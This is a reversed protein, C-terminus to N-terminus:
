HTVVVSAQENANVKVMAFAFGGTPKSHVYGGPTLSPVEWTILAYVYYTGAPIQDFRFRGESDAKTTRM